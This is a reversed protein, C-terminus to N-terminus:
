LVFYQRMFLYWCLWQMDRYVVYVAVLTHLPFSISLQKLWIWQWVWGVCFFESVCERGLDNFWYLDFPGTELFMLSWLFFKVVRKASLFALDPWVISCAPKNDPQSYSQDTLNMNWLHWTYCFIFLLHVIDLFSPWILVSLLYLSCM